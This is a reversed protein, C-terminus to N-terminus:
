VTLGFAGIWPTRHGADYLNSALREFMWRSKEFRALADEDNGAPREEIHDIAARFVHCRVVKDRDMMTFRVGFADIEGPEKLATLPM